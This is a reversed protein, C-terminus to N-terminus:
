FVCNNSIESLLGLTARKGIEFQEFGLLEFRRDIDLRCHALKLRMVTREWTHRSQEVKPASCVCMDRSTCTTVRQVTARLMPWCTRNWGAAWAAVSLQLYQLMIISEAPLSCSFFYEWKISRGAPKWEQSSRIYVKCHSGSRPPEIRAGFRCVADKKTSTQQGHKTKHRRKERAM